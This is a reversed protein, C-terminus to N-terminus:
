RKQEGTSTLPQPDAAPTHKAEFDQMLDLLSFVLAREDGILDFANFNGSLTLSGKALPLQISLSGIM